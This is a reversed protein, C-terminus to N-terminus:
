NIASNSTLVFLVYQNNKTIFTMLEFHTFYSMLVHQSQLRHSMVEKLIHVDDPQNYLFLQSTEYISM